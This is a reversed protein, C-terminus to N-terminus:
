FFTKKNVKPFFCPKGVYIQYLIVANIHAEEVVLPPAALQAYPKLNAFKKINYRM